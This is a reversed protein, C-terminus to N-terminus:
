ERGAPSAMVQLSDGLIMRNSWNQDHQYFETKDVGPPIGNFDAFLDPREEGSEQRRESWDASGQRALCAPPRPRPQSARLGVRAATARSGEPHGVPVRGDPHEPAEGRRSSADRGAQGAPAKTKKAM